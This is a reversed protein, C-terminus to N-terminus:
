PTAPSPAPAALATGVIAEVVDEVMLMTPLVSLEVQLSALSTDLDRRGSELRRVMPGVDIVMLDLMTKGGLNWLWWGSGRAHL